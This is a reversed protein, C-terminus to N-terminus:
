AERRVGRMYGSDGVINTDAMAKARADANRSAKPRMSTDRLDMRKGTSPLKMTGGKARPPLKSNESAHGAWETLNEKASAAGHPGRMPDAYEKLRELRSM